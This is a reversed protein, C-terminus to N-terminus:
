IGRTPPNIISKILRSLFLSEINYKTCMDTFNQQFYTIMNRKIWGLIKQIELLM